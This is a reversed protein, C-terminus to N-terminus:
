FQSFPIAAASVLIFVIPVANRILFMKLNKSSNMM